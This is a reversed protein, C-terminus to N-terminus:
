PDAVNEAVDRTNREMLCRARQLSTDRFKIYCKETVVSSAHGLLRSITAVPM